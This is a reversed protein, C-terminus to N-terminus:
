KNHTYNNNVYTEILRHFFDGGDENLDDALSWFSDRVTPELALTLRATKLSRRRRGSGQKREVSHRTTFGNEESIENLSQKNTKRAKTFPKLNEFNPLSIEARKTM